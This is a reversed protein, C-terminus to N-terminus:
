LFEKLERKVYQLQNSTCVVLFVTGGSIVTGQVCAYVTKYYESQLDEIM